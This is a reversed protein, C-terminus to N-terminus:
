LALFVDFGPFFHLFFFKSYSNENGLKFFRYCGELILYANHIRTTLFHYVLKCTNLIYYPIKKFHSIQHNNKKINLVITYYMVYSILFNHIEYLLSNNEYLLSLGYLNCSSIKRWALSLFICVNYVHTWLLLLMSDVTM